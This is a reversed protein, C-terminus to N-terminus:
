LHLWFNWGSNGVTCKRVFKSAKLTLLAVSVEWAQAQFSYSGRHVIDSVFWTRIRPVVAAGQTFFLKDPFLCPFVWVKLSSGFCSVWFVFLLHTPFILISFPHPDIIPTHPPSPLLLFSFCFFFPINLSISIYPSVLLIKMHYWCMSM